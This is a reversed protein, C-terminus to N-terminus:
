SCSTQCLGFSIRLSKILNRIERTNIPCKASEFTWIVSDFQCFGNAEYERIKMLADDRYERDDMMGFHEWYVEKREKINLLTFDPHVVIRKLRLPKEYFFPVSLEELIDAILVESKSRVRIGSRTYYEPSGDRFPMADYKQLEWSKLYEEDSIFHPKILVRKGIGMQELATKFPTVIGTTKCRELEKKSEQLSKMLKEDYEIQALVIAKNIDKKKIYEGNTESGERRQFYQYGNGHKIARLAVPEEVSSKLKELETGVREISNELMAIEQLLEFENIM